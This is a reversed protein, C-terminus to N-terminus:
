APKCAWSHAASLLPSGKAHNLQCCYKSHTGRGLAAITRAFLVALALASMAALKSSLVRLSMVRARESRKFSGLGM